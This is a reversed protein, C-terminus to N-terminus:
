AIKKIRLFSLYGILILFNITLVSWSMYLAYTERGLLDYLSFSIICLNVILVIKWSFTYNQFHKLVITLGLLSM